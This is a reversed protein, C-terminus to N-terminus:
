LEPSYDVIKAIKAETGIINQELHHIKHQINIQFGIDLFLLLFFSPEYAPRTRKKKQTVLGEGQFWDGLM